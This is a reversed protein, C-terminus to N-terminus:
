PGLTKHAGGLARRARLLTSYAVPMVWLVLPIQVVLGSIISIALPQLLASGQGIALSLPALALIAALTTMVIPRFRDAGAKVLRDALPADPLTMFESFYFIAIETVIGIVMTMGMMATINRETGSVWLGVFVAATALLPMIIIVSAILFEGYVFLLLAFVLVIAAAFVVTLDRMAIQQQQFLGGMEMSVGPPLLKNSTILQEVDAAATGLSLGEIRATVAIMRRMNERDIEPQGTLVNVSAVRSLPFLHGDSARLPLKSIAEISNRYAEPLSARVGVAKTPQEVQSAVNGTIFDSLQSTVESPTVGELAARDRNVKIDLADGAIVIGSNVAVLGPAKSLANALRNATSALVDPDNGFLKVEIPQPVATLDGILDEMLQALEIQVGPVMTEIKTRVESMVADIARRPQPTLRVFYDGKNAESLGGGLGLGTRRSYTQVEPTAALIAEVQGLLRNTETLSTGPPTRYDLIFGGEDMSPMFGSGVQTFAFAGMGVLPIVLLLILWPRVVAGRLSREYTDDVWSAFRGPREPRAESRLVLVRSVLPVVLWSVLLSIGLACAMTLSLAKFFAGTVGSLFALPVFIIITSLSSAVLPRTLRRAAVLVPDESTSLGSRVATVIQEVTVITDDIILGVAAGAGGLTMINIGMGLAQLLLGTLALVIPVVALGILSIRWSRLFAFLVIAALAVGILIADRVSAVSESVLQGQDYWTKITVGAPIVSHLAALKSALDKGIQVTNAGPQQYVPMLVAPRGDAVVRQWQRVNAVAVRAVDELTVVGTAGPKVITNLIQDISEFRTDSLVLLLKHRDELEGVATLVNGANLAKAVDGLSLGLSRLQDPDVTVRYEQQEGGQVAVTAIGPISSLAPALQYDALDRLQIQTLPDSTLSFAMVPFVEPDMRRATYTSGPPLSSMMQSVQAQVQLLAIEMNTGWSFDVSIEASGRSTTSRVGIAGVVSRMAQELKRTVEIETEPAPRVGADVNVEVRPFSVEPFLSVPLQLIAAAGSLALVGLLFFLFRSHRAAWDSLAM